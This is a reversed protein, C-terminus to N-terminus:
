IMLEQKQKLNEYYKIIRNNRKIPYQSIITSKLATARVETPTQGKFRTQFRSHNYYHIYMDIAQRLEQFSEYRHQHVMETKIIGWFGEIPGNDICRGVRSMSQTLGYKELTYQFVKSTYQFGRDSHFLPKVGPNRKMAQEFTKFILTNNNRESMEYAVISRDYLDLIASLYLKKSTKRDKFETVDAVWKENPGSAIFDRALINEATIEPNSHKFRTKKKRIISKIGLLRMIRRIRKQNYHRHNFRNISLTMQRYGLIHNFIEDYEIIWQAIQHNEKELITQSRKLWKYYSSRQIGLVNCM